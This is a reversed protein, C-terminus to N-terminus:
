VPRLTALKEEEDALELYSKALKLYFSRTSPSPRSLEANKPAIGFCTQM